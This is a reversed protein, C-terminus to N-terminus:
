LATTGDRAAALDPKTFGVKFVGPVPFVLEPFDPDSLVRIRQLFVGKFRPHEVQRLSLALNSDELAKRAKRSMRKTVGEEFFATPDVALLSVAQPRDTWPHSSQLAM